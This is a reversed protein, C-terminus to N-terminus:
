DSKLKARLWKLTGSYIGHLTEVKTRGGVGTRKGVAELLENTRGPAMQVKRFRKMFDAARRPNERELQRLDERSAINPYLRSLEKRREEVQKAIESEVAEYALRAQSRRRAEKLTGTRWPPGFVQDWSEWAGDAGRQLVAGLAVGAWEPPVQRRVYALLLMDLLAVGKGSEFQKQLAASEAAFDGIEEESV